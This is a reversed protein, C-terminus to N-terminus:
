QMDFPNRNSFQADHNSYFNNFDHLQQTQQDQQNFGTGELNRFSQETLQKCQPCSILDSEYTKGCRSCKVFADSEFKSDPQLLNSMHGIRRSGIKWFIVNFILFIVVLVVSSIAGDVSLEENQNVNANLSGLYFLIFDYIGHFMISLFLGKLITNGQALANYRNSKEFKALSLYYGLIVGCFFHCPISFIARMFSTQFAAYAGESFFSGFVYFFNEACAFGLSVFVGYVIGDFREDFEPSNWIFGYLFLLKFCEETCAAVIFATWFSYLLPSPDPIFVNFFLELIFEIICIPIISIIGCFFAGALMSLPEKNYRDKAFIYGLGAIVPAVAACILLYYQNNMILSYPVTQLLHVVTILLSALLQTM